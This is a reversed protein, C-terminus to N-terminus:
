HVILVDCPAHRSVARSVSGRMLRDLLGPERTGVVLLDAARESAVDVLAEAPEGVATVYDAELGRATLVDQAHALEERHRAPPDAPDIGGGGRPGPMLVPAVSVVVLRSGFKEALQAARDLARVAPESEDYGVVLTGFM